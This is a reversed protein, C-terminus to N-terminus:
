EEWTIKTVKPLVKKIESNGKVEWTSAYPKGAPSAVVNYHSSDIKQCLFGLKTIFFQDIEVDYFWYKAEEYPNKPIYEQVSVIKKNGSVAEEAGIIARSGDSLIAIMLTDETRKEYECKIM